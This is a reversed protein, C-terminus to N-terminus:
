LPYYKSSLKRGGLGQEKKGNVIIDAKKYGKDTTSKGVVNCFSFTEGSSIKINNLASCTISINNQREPDKNHINTSFSSIETEVPVSINIQNELTNNTTNTNNQIILNSKSKEAKYNSKNNNSIKNFFYTSLGIVGIVIILILIYIWTKKM